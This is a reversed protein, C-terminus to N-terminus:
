PMRRSGAGNRAMPSTSDTIDGTADIAGGQGNDDTAGDTGTTGSEAPKSEPVTTAEESPMTPILTEPVAPATNQTPMTPETVNQPTCGCGTFLSITLVSVTLFLCYKKM